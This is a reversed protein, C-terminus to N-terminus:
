IQDRIAEIHQALELRDVGDAQAQKLAQNYQKDALNSELVNLRDGSVDAIGNAIGANPEPEPQSLSTKIVPFSIRYKGKANKLYWEAGFKLILETDLVQSIGEVLIARIGNVARVWALAPQGVYDQASNSVFGAFRWLPIQTPMIIATRYVNMSELLDKVGSTGANLSQIDGDPLMVFDTIVETGNKVKEDLVKKYAIAFDAKTGKPMIHKRPNLALARRGIAYEEKSRKYEQWDWASQYWVSQGYLGRRRYRLHVMQAPNWFYDPSHQALTRRQEFGTLDGNDQELRFMEFPPIRLLKGIAYDTDKRSFGERVFGISQFHDGRGICDSIMLDILSIPYIREFLELAVSKITPDVPTKGDPQFEGITFGQDDGDASSRVDTRYIDIALGAESSHELIELIHKAKISERIPYEEIELDYDTTRGSFLGASFQSRPLSRQSGIIINKISATLTNFVQKTWNFRDNVQEAITPM